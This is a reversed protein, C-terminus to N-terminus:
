AFLTGDCVTVSEGGLEVRSQRMQLRIVGTRRSVQLATFENKSLKERWYPGLVCHAVGTVPDEDIGHGPAFFRSVFDFRSDDSRATVCVPDPAASRMANFDPAVARVEAESELAFIWIPDTGDRDVRRSDIPRVGVAATLAPSPAADISPFAPFDLMIRQDVARATLEGSRTHFRAVRSRELRGSAYLMHASALTAHGCLPVEITPTFWRLGFGDPRPEVFATESLNMEAAVSQMWRADRPSALWVVAAPNGCFPEATFADIVSYPAPM